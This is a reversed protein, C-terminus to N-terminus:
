SIGSWKVSTYMVQGTDGTVSCLLATKKVSAGLRGASIIEFPTIKKGWPIIVVIYFSHYRVPDGPYALFDGGFNVGSTLYYGKEWLDLFVKYHLKECDTQPYTWDAPPFSQLRLPMETPIHILTGLESYSKLEETNNGSDNTLSQAESEEVLRNEAEQEANTLKVENAPQTVNKSCTEEVNGTINIDSSRPCNESIFQNCDKDEITEKDESSEINLEESKLKKAPVSEEEVTGVKGKRKKKKKGERERDNEEEDNSENGDKKNIERDEDSENKSEEVTKAAFGAAKERKRRRGEEIEEALEIRKEEQMRKFQEIQKVVSERRLENFKEVDEDSPTFPNRSVNFIRAMGKNLLLTTEERSLLLPLSFANNQRPKRPLSGILSGVIRYKSRMKFVDDADWAYVKGYCAFLNVPIDDKLEAFHEAMNSNAILVSFLAKSDRAEAFWVRRRGRSVSNWGRHQPSGYLIPSTM